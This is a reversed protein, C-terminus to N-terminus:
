ECSMSALSSSVSARRLLRRWSTISGFEVLPARELGGAVAHQDFKRIGDMRRERRSGFKSSTLRRNVSALRLKCASIASCRAVSAAKGWGCIAVQGTTDGM